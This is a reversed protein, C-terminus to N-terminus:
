TEDIIAHGCWLGTWDLREGHLELVAQLALGKVSPTRSRLPRRPHYRTGCEGRTHPSVRLQVVGVLRKRCRSLITLSIKRM